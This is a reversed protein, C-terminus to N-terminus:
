VERNRNQNPIQYPNSKLSFTLVGRFSCQGEISGTGSKIRRKIGPKTDM